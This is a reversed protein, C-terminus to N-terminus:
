MDMTLYTSRNNCSTHPAHVYTKHSDFSASWDSTILISVTSVHHQGLQYLITDTVVPKGIQLIPMRKKRSHRRLVSAALWLYHSDSTRTEVKMSCQQILYNLATKMLLLQDCSTTRIKALQSVFREKGIGEGCDLGSCVRAGEPSCWRWRIIISCVTDHSIEV